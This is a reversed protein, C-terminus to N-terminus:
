SQDTQSKIWIITFSINSDPFLNLAECSKATLFEGLLVYLLRSTADLNKLKFYILLLLLLLLLLM